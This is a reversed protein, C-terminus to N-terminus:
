ASAEKRRIRIKSIQGVLLTMLAASLILGWGARGPHVVKLLQALPQVYIAALLLAVCLGLAEWVFMNRTVDNFLLHSGRDRMNFTHLLRSFALAMFAVTVAREYDMGFYELAAAYCGLVSAAIMAGYGVIAAWHIRSLIPEDAKRPPQLMKSSDEKGLGLALAPFVDGLMNLYLIQLPLLPLRAKAMLAFAVIMIEGMNGSLLFLIFKRINDFIARGLAVAVAITGFADDKLIMDSAERAVETGCKGMAIGIDAKKLAPADNVGDGTMAVVSGNRQHLEVLDLKQKPSIRAFINTRLYKEREQASLAGVGELERGHIVPADDSDTLGVSQGVNRATIPQDGTVMITRIGARTCSAIAERVELLPPDLMGVLGVFVLDRYPDDDISKVTKGALALVRLGDVALRDNRELLRRRTDEDLKKEGSGTRISTCIDLISEPSGKAAVRYEGDAEHFTAMRASEPDFAEKRAEPMKKLMDDRHVGFAAGLTLLTIELPDGVAQELDSHSDGNLSANSCLVGIQLAKRFCSNEGPDISDNGVSVSPPDSRLDIDIMNEYDDAPILRTATLRNETLTGTKDTCIVSVSGLTEVAPLSNVLANLNAMRWMGRALALTAVIPLGEPIAAVALAIATEVILLLGMGSFVGGIVLLVVMTMTIWILRNGLRNLRSELLPIEEGAEALLSSIQGLETQMGTAVVVGEGSSGTVSTGKFLMNKREAQTLDKDLAEPGKGVPFSEGTLASEDVRMRSAEILRLDAGVLDGGELLVVDGITLEEAPILRIRGDRRVKAKTRSMRSLAEMSRVAELETFFGIATNIVLVAVISIGELIQGFLFALAAAVALLLVILNKFQAICISVASRKPAARLRNPGYERFRRGAEGASLGKDSDVGLERAIESWSRAWPTEPM